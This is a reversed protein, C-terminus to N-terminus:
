PSQADIWDLVRKFLVKVAVDKVGAIAAVKEKLKSALNPIHGKAPYGLEVDVTVKGGDVAIKKVAKAAVLDQELYPDIVEKLATEVQQQSVDAM